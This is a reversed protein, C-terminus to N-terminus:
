NNAASSRTYTMNTDPNPLESFTLTFYIDEEMLWVGLMKNELVQFNVSAFDNGSEQSTTDIGFEDIISVAQYNTDLLICITTINNFSYFNAPNGLTGYLDFDSWAQTDGSQELIAWRVGQPGGPPEANGVNADPGESKRGLYEWVLDGKETPVQAIENAWWSINTVYGNNSRTLSINETLQDHFQNDDVWNMQGGPKSFQIDPGTWIIAEVLEIGDCNNDIGDNAIETTDPNINPNTDDCDFVTDNDTYLDEDPNECFSLPDGVGFGDNDEDLYFVLDCGPNINPNNDNTDGDKTVYQGVATTPVKCASTSEIGGFGDLDKDLYFTQTTCGDDNSCSIMVFLAIGFFSARFISSYSTKM